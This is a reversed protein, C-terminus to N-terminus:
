VSFCVADVQSWLVVSQNVLQRNNTYKIPEPDLNASYYERNKKVPPKIEFSIKVEGRLNAVLRDLRLKRKLTLIVQGTVKSGPEYFPQDTFIEAIYPSQLNTLM